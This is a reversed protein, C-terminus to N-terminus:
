KIFACDDVTKIDKKTTCIGERQESDRGHVLVTLPCSSQVEARSIGLCSHKALARPMSASERAEQTEQAKVKRLVNTCDKKGVLTVYEM